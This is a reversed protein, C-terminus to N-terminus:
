QWRRWFRSSRGGIRYLSHEEGPKILGQDILQEITLDYRGWNIDDNYSAPTFRFGYYNVERFNEPFNNIANQIITRATDTYKFCADIQGAGQGGSAHDDYELIFFGDEEDTCKQNNIM